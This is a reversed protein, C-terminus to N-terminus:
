YIFCRVYFSLNNKIMHQKCDNLVAVRAHIFILIIHVMFNVSFLQNAIITVDSVQVLM